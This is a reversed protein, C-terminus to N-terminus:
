STRRIRNEPLTWYTIARWVWEMPGYRFRALWWHSFAIQLVAVAFVFVVQKAREMGYWGLGYGYFVTSAILSQGLYNTLAMRGYPALHRLYRACRTHMLCVLLSLYGLCGPLDSLDRMSTSLSFAEDNKGPFHETAFYASALGISWGVPIGIWAMKKFQSLYAGTNEMVGLRMLGFGILFLAIVTLSAWIRGGYNDAFEYARFKVLEIYANSQVLRVEEDSDDSQDAGKDSSNQQKKEPNKLTKKDETKQAPSASVAASAMDAAATKQDNQSKQHIRATVTEAQDVTVYQYASMAVAVVFISLYYIVGVALPRQEPKRHFRKLVYSLVFGFVAILLVILAVDKKETFAAIGGAIVMLL